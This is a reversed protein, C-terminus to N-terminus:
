NFDSALSPLSFLQPPIDKPVIISIGRAATVAPSIASTASNERESCIIQRLHGKTIATIICFTREQNFVNFLTNKRFIWELYNVAIADTFSAFRLESPRAERGSRLDSNATFMTPIWFGNFPAM